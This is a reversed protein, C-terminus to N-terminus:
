LAAAPAPRRDPMAGLVRLMEWRRSDLREPSLELARSIDDDAMGEILMRLIIQDLPGLRDRLSRAIAPAVPPLLRRGEAVAHIAWVVETGLSGKSIVGDAGAVVARVALRSDAYASYVLVRPPRPLGKLMRCLSLGDTQGDGLQYDVVAVDPSVRLAEVLMERASATAGALAIGEEDELLDALGLRVALHDDALLVRIRSAHMLRAQGLRGRAGM